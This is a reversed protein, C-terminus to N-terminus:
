SEQFSTKNIYNSELEPKICKACFEIQPISIDSFLRHILDCEAVKWTALTIKKQRFNYYSIEHKIDVM